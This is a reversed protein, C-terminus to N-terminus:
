SLRAVITSVAAVAVAGSVAALPLVRRWDIQDKRSSSKFLVSGNVTPRHKEYMKMAHQGAVTKRLEAQLSQLDPPLRDTSVGFTANYCNPQLLPAALAALTLDAASFGYSRGKKGGQSDEDCV